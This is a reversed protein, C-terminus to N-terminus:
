EQPFDFMCLSVEQEMRVDCRMRSMLQPRGSM